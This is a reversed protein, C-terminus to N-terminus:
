NVRGYFLGVLGNLGLVFFLYFLLLVLGVFYFIYVFVNGGEYDSYIILYFRMLDVFDEDKFGILNVLNKVYDVNLDVEGMKGDKFVNRYIKVVIVLLKGM